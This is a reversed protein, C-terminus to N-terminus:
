LCGLVFVVMNECNVISFSELTSNDTMSVVISGMVLWLDSPQSRAYACM